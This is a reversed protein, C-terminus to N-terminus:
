TRSGTGLEESMNVTHPRLEKQIQLINEVHNNDASLQNEFYVLLM